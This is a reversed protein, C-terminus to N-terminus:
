YGCTCFLSDSIPRSVEGKKKEAIRAVARAERTAHAIYSVAYTDPCTADRILSRGMRWPGITLGDPRKGDSRFLGNPELTSPIQAAALSRQIISNIAAHRYHRGKSKVHLAFQDVKQGCHCCCHPECLPVGLRLGTAIRVSEDDLRLGLSTLPLANLWAGSEKTTVSLLRARSFTDPASDLLSDCANQVIPYDWAKQCVDSPSPPPPYDQGKHWATLADLVEAYPLSHFAVPLIRNILSSTGAASALFASPALMVVSHVGIGLFNLQSRHKFWTSEMEFSINLM